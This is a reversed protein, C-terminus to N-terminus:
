FDEFRIRTSLIIQDPNKIQNQYEVKHIRIRSDLCAVEIFGNNINTIQGPIACFKFKDEIVEADWIIFKKSKLFTYAGMYPKNFANIKRIVSLNNSNWNIRGDSPQLPFCRLSDQENSSQSQLIYKSNEQLKALSNIFLIPVTEAIWKLIETIKTNITIPYYERAIIDGADLKDGIMKHICLGIKKEGNLIAWAQCANGKYRPLDGGHANLIGFKFLDIISKPIIGPYNISIAIDSDSKELLSYNKTIPVESSFPINNKKAFEEFDRKTKTYEIAEKATIICSIEHGSSILYQLMKFLIETRGIVAVKM